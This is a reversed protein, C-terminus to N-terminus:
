KAQDRYAKPTLQVWRRFARSFTSQETFGTLFAIEAISHPTTRLLRTALERQTYELLEQFTVNQEALRRQLTRSSMGLRRAMDSLRPVGESLVQSVEKCVRQALDEVPNTNLLKSDLQVDFFRSIAPDGLRNSRALVENSVVLADQDSNFRIPCQFYAAYPCDGGPASQSIFVEQLAFNGDSVERSLNTAAALALDNTMSLGIRRKLGPIIKFVSTDGGPLFTFNAISTIIRGYREVRNYSGALTEASKFAFGFVGYLDCTMSAGVRLPLERYRPHREALMELWDFFQEESLMDSPDVPESPSLGIEQYLKRQEAEDVAAAQIFRHAFTTSIWGM